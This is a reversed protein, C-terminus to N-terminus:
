FTPCRTGSFLGQRHARKIRPGKISAKAASSGNSTQTNHTYRMRACLVPAHTCCARPTSPPTRAVCVSRNRHASRASSAARAACLVVDFEQRHACELRTRAACLFSCQVTM